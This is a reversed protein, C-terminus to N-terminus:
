DFTVGRLALRQVYRRQPQLDAVPSLGHAAPVERPVVHDRWERRTNVIMPQPDLSIDGNQLSLPRGSTHVLTPTYM